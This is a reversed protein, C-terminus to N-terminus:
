QDRRLLRSGTLYAHREFRPEVRHCDATVPFLEFLDDAIQQVVRHLEAAGTASDLQSEARVPVRRHHHTRVVADTDRRDVLILQAGSEKPRGVRCGFCYLSRTEPQRDNAPDEVLM